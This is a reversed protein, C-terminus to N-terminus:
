GRKFAKTLRFLAPIFVLALVIESAGAFAFSAGFGYRDAILGGVFPGVVFGLSGFFNFGGMAVGRKDRPAIDGTLAASPAFMLAGAIGGAIMVIGIANLQLVGVFMVCVGYLISGAVIPIARGTRESLRGGPYQLLAFPLLFAFMLFGITAPDSGHVSALYLPFVSVFFGVTFRDVFSFAYPIMLRREELLLRLAARVSVARNVSPVDRLFLLALIGGIALLVSGAYFPFLPDISGLRGGIPAGFANGLAFSMAVIGIGEGIRVTDSRDLAGTMILSFAMISFTGEIFRFLLLLPLTGALTVLFMMIANGFLGVIVFPRRKGAKDSLAGWVLAFIVYALLNFSVFLSAQTISADFRDVVFPRMVPYVMSISLMLIFTLLGLLYINRM